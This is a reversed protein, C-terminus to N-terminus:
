SLQARYCTTVYPMVTPRQADLLARVRVLLEERAAPEQTIVYSRSTVMDMIEGTTMPHSWAFNRQETPEFLEGVYEVQRDETPAAARDHLIQDLEAVWPVSM